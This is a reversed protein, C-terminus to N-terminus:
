VLVKFFFFKGGGEGGDVSKSVGVRMEMGYFEFRVGLEMEFSIRQRDEM